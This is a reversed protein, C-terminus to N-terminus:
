RGSWYYPIVAAGNGNPGPVPWATAALPVPSQFHHLYTWNPVAHPSSLNPQGGYPWYTYWPGPVCAGGCPGFACNGSLVGCGHACCGGFPMIRGVFKHIHAARCHLCGEARATQPGLWLFATLAGIVLAFRTM